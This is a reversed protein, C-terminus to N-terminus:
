ENGMNYSTFLPYIIGSNAGSKGKSSNEFKQPSFDFKSQLSSLLKALHLNIALLWSNLGQITAMDLQHLVLKKSERCSALMNPMVSLPRTFVKELHAKLASVAKSHSNNISILM